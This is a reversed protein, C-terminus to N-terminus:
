KLLGKARLLDMMQCNGCNCGYRAAWQLHDYVAKGKYLQEALRQALQFLSKYECTDDLIFPIDQEYYIECGCLPKSMQIGEIVLWPETLYREGCHKWRSTDWTSVSCYLRIRYRRVVLSDHFLFTFDDRM